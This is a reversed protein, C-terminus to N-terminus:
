SMTWYASEATATAAIESVREAQPLSEPLGAGTDVGAVVDSGACPEEGACYAARPL